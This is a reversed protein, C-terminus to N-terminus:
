NNFFEQYTVTTQKADEKIAEKVKDVTPTDTKVTQTSAVNLGKVVGSLTTYSANSKDLDADLKTVKASQEAFMNTVITFGKTLLNVQETLASIDTETTEVTEVTETVEQTEVTTETESNNEKPLNDEVLQALESESLGDTSVGLMKGIGAALQDFFKM